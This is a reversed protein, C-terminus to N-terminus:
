EATPKPTEEPNRDLLAHYSKPYRSVLRHRDPEPRYRNRPKKKWSRPKPVKKASWLVEGAIMGLPYAHQIEYPGYPVLFNTDCKDDALFKACIQDVHVDELRQSLPLIDEYIDEDEDLKFDSNFDENELDDAHQLFADDADNDECVPKKTTTLNPSHCNVARDAFPKRVVGTNSADPKRVVNSASNESQFLRSSLVSM